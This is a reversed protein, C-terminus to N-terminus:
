CVLRRHGYPCEFKHHLGVTNKTASEKKIIDAIGRFIWGHPLANELQLVAGVWAFSNSRLEKRPQRVHPLAKELHVASVGGTCWTRLFQEAIRPSPQLWSAISLVCGTGLLTGIRQSTSKCTAINKKLQVVTLRGIRKERFFDIRFTKGDRREEVYDDQNRLHERRTKRQIFNRIRKQIRGTGKDRSGQHKQVLEGPPNHGCHNLKEYFQTNNLTHVRACIITGLAM